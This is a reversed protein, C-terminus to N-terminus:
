IKSPFVIGPKTIPNKSAVKTIIIVTKQNLIGNRPCRTVNYIPSENYKNDETPTPNIIDESTTVICCPRKPAKKNKTGDIISDPKVVGISFIGKHICYRVRTFGILYKRTIILVVNRSPADKLM